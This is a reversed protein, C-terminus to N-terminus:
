KRNKSVDDIYDAYEQMMVKREDLFKARDYARTVMSKAAHALQRDIVEHRYKLKEKITSMALARFGHGTMRGKFGLRHLALRITNNSMHKLPSNQSPLIWDWHGNAEQLLTLIEVAQKSLPVIHEKRMKMREAPIIWEADDFNFETWKAEILEKTRVFTLMLLKTALRTELRLCADNKEIASVLEPIEHIEISPYHKRVVPNLAESLDSAPNYIAYGNAIAYRFIQGCSQRMRHAPEIAERKQMKKFCDLLQPPTINTVPMNGIAPFVDRELRALVTTAHRETWKSKINEHWERAIIEFSNDSNQKAIRKAEKKAISPDINNDLLKRAELCRDRADKLSVEPYVGLSLLKAKGFYRYRMRWYKGGNPRVELNLGRGDPVRYVKDKSNLNQCKKDTLSM